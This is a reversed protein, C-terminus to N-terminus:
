CDFRVLLRVDDNPGPQPSRHVIGRGGAGPFAEGKLVAVQGTGLRQVLAEPRHRPLDPRESLATRIADTNRLWETGAGRYTCLLRLHYHDVHFARCMGDEVRDLSVRISDHGCFQFFTIALLILDERLASGAKWALGTDDMMAFIQHVVRDRDLHRRLHFPLDFRADFVAAKLDAPLEREWIALNRHPERVHGLDAAHRVRVVHDPDSCQTLGPLTNM